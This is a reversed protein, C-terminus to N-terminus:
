SVRYNDLLDCDGNLPGAIVDLEKRPGPATLRGVEIGILGVSRAPAHGGDEELVRCAVNIVVEGVLLKDHVDVEAADRRLQRM